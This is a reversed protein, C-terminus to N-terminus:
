RLFLCFMVLYAASCVAAVRRGKPCLGFRLAAITSCVWGLIFVPVLFCFLLVVVATDAAAMPALMRIVPLLGCVVPLLVIGIWAGEVNSESATQM